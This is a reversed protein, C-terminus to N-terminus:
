KAAESQLRDPVEHRRGALFEDLRVLWGNEGPPAAWIHERTHLPEDAVRLGLGELRWVEAAAPRGATGLDPVPVPLGGAERVLAAALPDGARVAIEVDDIDKPPPEGPPVGVRFETVHYPRTLAVRSKWPTKHTLGGVVLDLERRELSELLRGEGGPVWEVTAGLEAALAEVLAVEVGTARGGNSVDAWPPDHIVGVRLTGNEVRRLTGEPDRPLQCGLGISILPLFLVAFRM